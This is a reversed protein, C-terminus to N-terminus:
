AHSQHVGASSSKGQAAIYFANPFPEYTPPLEPRLTKVELKRSLAGM